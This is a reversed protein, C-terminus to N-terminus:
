RDASRAGGRRRPLAHVQRLEFGFFQLLWFLTPPPYRHIPFLMAGSGLSIGQRWSAADIPVELMSAPVITGAAGGTLAM